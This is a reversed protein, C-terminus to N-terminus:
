WSSPLAQSDNVTCAIWFGFPAANGGLSPAVGRVSGDMMQVQVGSASLATCNVNSAAAPVFTTVPLSSITPPQFYIDAPTGSNTNYYLRPSLPTTFAGVYATAGAPTAFGGAQGATVANSIREAVGVINSTGRQSFTAPLVANGKIAGGAGPSAQGGQATNQGTAIYANLAYSLWPQTPDGTSDLPAYFPKFPPWIQGGNITSGGVAGPAGAYAVNNYITDGEMFPLLEMFFSGKGTINVPNNQPPIVQSGICVSGVWIKGSKASAQNHIALGMQKLNNQSQSRAAAERVKQVAPLLLGILIAIIAIVVLLEILTFGRRHRSVFTRKV